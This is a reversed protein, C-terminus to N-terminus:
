SSLLSIRLESGKQPPDYGDASGFKSTESLTVVLELRHTNTRRYNRAQCGQRLTFHTEINRKRDQNSYQHHEENRTEQQKGDRM